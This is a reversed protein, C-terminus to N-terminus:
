FGYVRRLVRQNAPSDDNLTNGTINTNGVYLYKNILVGPNDNTAFTFQVGAGPGVLLHAQPIFQYAYTDDYTTHTTPNYRSWVLILGTHQSNLSRPLTISQAATMFWAGSWLLDWGAYEWNKWIASGSSDYTREWRGAPTTIQTGPTNMYGRAMDDFAGVGGDAAYVRLDNVVVVASSGATIKVLALPQDDTGSVGGDYTTRSPMLQTSGGPVVYFASPGGPFTRRMVVMDFRVGTPQSPFTLTAVADSVDMVGKGWGVGASISVTRTGASPAVKWANIDRVGYQSAGIEPHIKSWQAANIDGAYGYSTITM